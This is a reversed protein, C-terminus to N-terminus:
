PQIPCSFRNYCCFLLYTKYMDLWLVQLGEFALAKKCLSHELDSDHQLILGRGYIGMNYLLFNKTDRFVGSYICSM